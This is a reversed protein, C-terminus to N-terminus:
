EIVVDARSLLSFPLIMGLAAAAKPSVFLEVKTVRQVPLDSPKEGKLIRGAYIGTHRHSQSFDGGYSMLGGAATFERFEYIAPVRHQAVLALTFKSGVVPIDPRMKLLFPIGGIHLALRGLLLLGESLLLRPAGIFM